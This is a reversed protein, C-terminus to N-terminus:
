NNKEYVLNKLVLIFFLLYVLVGLVDTLPTLYLFGFLVVLLSCVFITTYLFRQDVLLKIVLVALPLSIFLVSLSELKILSIFVLLSSFSIIFLKVKKSYPKNFLKEMPASFYIISGLVLGPIVFEYM